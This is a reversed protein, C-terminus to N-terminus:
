LGKVHQQYESVSNYIKYPFNYPLECDLKTLDKEKNDTLTYTSDILEAKEDYYKVLNELAAYKTCKSNFFNNNRQFAFLNGNEDFYSKYVIFWDDNPSKPMEAIYIIKGDKKFINYITEIPRSQNEPMAVIAEEGKLKVLFILKREANILSDITYKKNKQTILLSKDVSGSCSAIFLLIVGALILVRYMDVIKFLYLLM